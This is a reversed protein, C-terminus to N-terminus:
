ASWTQQSHKVNLFKFKKVRSSLTLVIGRFTSFCEGLSAADSELLGTEAVGSHSNLGELPYLKNKTHFQRQIKHISVFDLSRQRGQGLWTSVQTDLRWTSV